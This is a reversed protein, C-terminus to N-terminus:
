KKVVITLDLARQETDHLTVRKAQSRLADLRAPDRWGDATSEDIAAVFYDGAPLGMVKYSGSPDARISRMREPDLGATGRFSVTAPFVIVTATAVPARGSDYVAGGIMTPKDTFTVILDDLDGAARLDFPASLLDVGGSTISKLYWGAPPPGTRVFYEGRALGRIALAGTADIFAHRALNNSSHMPVADLVVTQGPHDPAPAAGEFVVQGSVTAAPELEVRVDTVDHDILSVPTRAYLAERGASDGGGDSVEIKTGLPGTLV